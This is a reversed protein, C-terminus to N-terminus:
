RKAALIEAHRAAWPHRAAKGTFPSLVRRGRSAPKPYRVQSRRTM